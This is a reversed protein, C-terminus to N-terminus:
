GNGNRCNVPIYFRVVSSSFMTTFWIGPLRTAEQPWTNNFISKDGEIRVYDKKVSLNKDNETATAVM